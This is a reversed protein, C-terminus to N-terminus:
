KNINISQGKGFSNEQKVENLFGSIEFSLINKYFKEQSPLEDKPVLVTLGVEENPQIDLKNGQAKFLFNSGKTGNDIKVEYGMYVSNQKIVHSSNNKLVLSYVLQKDTEDLDRLEIKIKDVDEPKIVSKSTSCGVVVMALLIFILIRKYM